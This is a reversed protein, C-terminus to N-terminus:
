VWDLMIRYRPIPSHLYLERQILSVAPTTMYVYLFVRTMWGHKFDKYSRCKIGWALLSNDENHPPPSLTKCYGHWESAESALLLKGYYSKTYSKLSRSHHLQPSWEEPINCACSPLQFNVRPSPFCYTTGFHWYRVALSCWTVNWQLSLRSQLHLNESYWIGGLHVGCKWVFYAPLHHCLCSGLQANM